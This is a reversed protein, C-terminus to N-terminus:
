IQYFKSPRIYSIILIPLHKKKKKLHKPHNGTIKYLNTGKTHLLTTNLM